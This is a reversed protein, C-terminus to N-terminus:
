LSVARTGGGLVRALMRHSKESALTPPGESGDAGGARLECDGRACGPARVAGRGPWGRAAAPATGQRAGGPTSSGESRWASRSCGPGSPPLRPAPEPSASLPARGSASPLPVTAPASSSRPRDPGFGAPPAATVFWWVGPSRCGSRSRVTGSASPRPRPTPLNVGPPARGGPCRDAAAQERDRWPWRQAALPCLWSQHGSGTVTVQPASPWLQPERAPTRLARANARRKSVAHGLDSRLTSLPGAAVGDLTFSGGPLSVKWGTSEAHNSTRPSPIADGGGRCALGHSAQPSQRAGEAGQCSHAAGQGRRAPPAGRADAPHWVLSM